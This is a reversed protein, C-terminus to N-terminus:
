AMEKALPYRARLKALVAYTRDTGARTILSELEETLDGSNGSVIGLRLIKRRAQDAARVEHMKPFSGCGENAPWAAKGEAYKALPTLANLAQLLADEIDILSAVRRTDEGM